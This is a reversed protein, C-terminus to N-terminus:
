SLDLCTTANGAWITWDNFCNIVVKSGQILRNEMSLTIVVPTITHIFNM